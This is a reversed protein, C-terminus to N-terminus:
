FLFAPLSTCFSRILAAHCFSQNNVDDESGESRTGGQHLRRRCLASGNRREQLPIGPPSHGSMGLQGIGDSEYQAAKRSACWSGKLHHVENINDFVSKEGDHPLFATHAFLDLEFGSLLSSFLPQRLFVASFLSFSSGFPNEKESKQRLISEHCVFYLLQITSCFSSFMM